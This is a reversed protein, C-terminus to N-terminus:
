KRRAHEADSVAKEGCPGEQGHHGQHDCRAFHHVPALCLLECMLLMTFARGDRRNARNTARGNRDREPRFFLQLDDRHDYACQFVRISFTVHIRTAHQTAGIAPGRLQDSRTPDQGDRMAASRRADMETMRDIGAAIRPM